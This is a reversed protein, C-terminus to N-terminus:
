EVLNWDCPNKQGLVLGNLAANMNFGDDSSISNLFEVTDARETDSIGAGAVPDLPAILVNGNLDQNMLAQDDISSNNLNEIAQQETIM